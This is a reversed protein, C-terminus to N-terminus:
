AGSGKVRRYAAELAKVARGKVGGPSAEFPGAFTVERGGLGRKFHYVGPNAEPDIGGLDYFRMERRRAEEIVAWQLLYSAKSALGEENTAGLVYVAADGLISAVHGAVAAGTRYAVTVVLKDSDPLRGQLERYFAADLPADFTKRELLRGYLAAFEGFLADDTGSRVELGERESRNLCNRWKQDFGKRIGGLDGSVDLVITRYGGGASEIFGAEGYLARVREPEVGIPRPSVRLVLARRSVMEERIMGLAAPSAAADTLLPGGSVYAIGTRALPVRKVRAAALAVPEGDDEVALRVAECRQRAALAEGYEWCQCYNYDGFRAALAPWQDLSIDDVRLRM